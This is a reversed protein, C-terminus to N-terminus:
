SVTFKEVSNILHETDGEINHVLALVSSANETVKASKEAISNTGEATDYVATTIDTLARVVTQISAMLEESTASFDTVMDSVTESDRSYEEGTQVLMNYDPIVQNNIFQLMAKANENLKEVSDIVVGTVQQIQSAATGSSEALKRIEDAVVAFGRGSEGARAAEIAANLSLLNTQNTIQLITDSLVRIQQVNSAGAMSSELSVRTSDYVTTANKKSTFAKHKLDEARKSIAVANEAGDQAKIAITEAAKEIEIATTKMDLVMAATEQMSASMQETTSSVEEVERSLASINDRASHVAGGVATGREQIDRVIGSISTKMASLSRILTGAEDKNQSLKEYNPIDASFDGSALEEVYKSSISIPKALNTGILGSVIALVLAVAVSVATAVALSSRRVAEINARKEAIAIGIDDVYNGTGIVWQFPEFAISYGRKMLPKKEPDDAKPFWYDTYGGGPKRGNEIIHKVLPYGNADLSDIRSFGEVETRGLLVVNVGEYTDAWFYGSAGYRLARLQAAAATKAEELTMKGDQVEKNFVEMLSVATMVQEKIQTDFSGQMTREIEEIDSNNMGVMSFSLIGFLTAFLVLMSIMTLTLIKYSLKRM